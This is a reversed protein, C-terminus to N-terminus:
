PLDLGVTSRVRVHGVAAGLDRHAVAPELAAGAGLSEVAECGRELGPGGAAEVNLGRPGYDRHVHVHRQRVDRDVGATLSSSLCYLPTVYRLGGYVYLTSEVLVYRTLSRSREASLPRGSRVAWIEKGYSSAPRGPHWPRPTRHVAAESAVSRSSPSARPDRARGDEPKQRTVPAQRRSPSQPTRRNPREPATRLQNPALPQRVARPRMRPATPPRRARFRLKRGCLRRATRM